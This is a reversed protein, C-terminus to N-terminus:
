ADRRICECGGWGEAGDENVEKGREEQSCYSPADGEPEQALNYWEVLKHKIYLSYEADDVKKLVWVIVEAHAEALGAARTYVAGGIYPAVVILCALYGVLHRSIKAVM